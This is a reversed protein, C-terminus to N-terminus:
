VFMIMGTVIVGDRCTRKWRLWSTYMYWWFNLNHTDQDNVVVGQEADAQFAKQFSAANFNNRSDAIAPHWEPMANFDRIRSWVNDASADIVSSAYVQVM